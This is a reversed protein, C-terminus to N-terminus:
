KQFIDLRFWREALVAVDDKCKPCTVEDGMEMVEAFHRKAEKLWKKQNLDKFYEAGEPDIEVHGDPFGRFMVGELLRDGFDYGNILVYDLDGCDECNFELPKSMNKIKM